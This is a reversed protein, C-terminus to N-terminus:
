QYNRILLTKDNGTMNIKIDKSLDNQGFVEINQNNGNQLININQAETKNFDFLSYNNQNGYQQIAQKSDHNISLIDITNYDGVQTYRIDKQESIVVNAHIINDNGIQNIIATQQNDQVAATSATQKYSQIIDGKYQITNFLIGEKEQAYFLTCTTLAFLTYLIALRKM